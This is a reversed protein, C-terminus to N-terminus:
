SASEDKDEKGLVVNAFYDKKSSHKIALVIVQRIFTSKEGYGPFLKHFREFLEDSIDIHLQKM